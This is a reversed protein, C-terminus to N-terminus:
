LNVMTGNIILTGDVKIPVFALTQKDAPATWTADPAVALPVGGGLRDDDELVFKKGGMRPWSFFEM